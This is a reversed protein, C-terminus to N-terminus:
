IKYFVNNLHTLTIKLKNLLLVTFSFPSFFLFLSHILSYVLSYM